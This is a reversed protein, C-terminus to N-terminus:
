FKCNEGFQFKFHICCGLPCIFLKIKITVYRKFILRRMMSKKPRSSILLITLWTWSGRTKRILKRCLCVFWFCFVFLSDKKYKIKPPPQKVNESALKICNQFLDLIQQKNLGPHSNAQLPQNLALSKRRNAAARADRARARELQDNNSGLVFPSTPSQIRLRQKRGMAPNPSLTEAMPPIQKASRHYPKHQSPLSFTLIVSVSIQSFRFQLPKGGNRLNSNTTRQSNLFVRVKSKLFFPM